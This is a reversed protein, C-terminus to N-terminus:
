CASGTCYVHVSQANSPIGNAIVQLTGTSNAPPLTSCDFKTSVDLTGTQVAESFGSTRCYYVNNTNDDTFRVLPYNTANQFEDGFASAQSMGSFRQGYATNPLGTFIPGLPYLVPAWASDYTTNNPTYIEIGDQSGERNPTFWIQGTPLVLFSGHASGLDPAYPVAAVEVLVNSPAPTLELFTAPTTNENPATMMLVNGNPLLVAPADLMRVQNGNEDMPFWPGRVWKDNQIPYVSNDLVATAGSQNAGAQFVTGDPRLVAPGMENDYIDGTDPTLRDPTGGLCYWKDSNGSNGLTFDVYLDSSSHSNCIFATGANLRSYTDVTLVMEPSRSPLL